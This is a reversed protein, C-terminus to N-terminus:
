CVLTINQFSFHFQFNHSVIKYIFINWVGHVSSVNSENRNPHLYMSQILILTAIHLFPINAKARGRLHWNVGECFIPM